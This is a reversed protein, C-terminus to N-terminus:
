VAPLFQFAIIAFFETEPFGCTLRVDVIGSRRL